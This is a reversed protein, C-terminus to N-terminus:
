RVSYAKLRENCAANCAITEQIEDIVDQALAASNSMRLITTTVWFQYSYAAGHYSNDGTQYDWDFENTRPNYRWGITVEIGPKDGDGTEVLTEASIQKKLSKFLATFEEKKAFIANKM